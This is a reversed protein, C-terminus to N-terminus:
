KEFNLFVSDAFIDPTFFSPVMDQSLSPPDSYYNTGSSSLELESNPIMSANEQGKGAEEETEGSRIGQMSTRQDTTSHFNFYGQKVTYLHVLQSLERMDDMKPKPPPKSFDGPNGTTKRAAASSSLGKNSGSPLGVGYRAIFTASRTLTSLHSITNRYRYRDKSLYVLIMDCFLTATGFFAMSSGVKMSFKLLNFKGAKGTVSIFFQIGNVKMLMRRHKVSGYHTAFETYFKDELPIFTRNSIQHSTQSNSVSGLYRFSYTPYCRDEHLDLDCDWHISIDIIGGVKLIERVVAGSQHIINHLRFNPCYKNFPHGKEYFCKKLYSANMWPLINRKKFKYIPFEISNKISVTFNLVDYLPEVEGRKYSPFDQARVRQEIFKLNSFLHFQPRLLPNSKSTIEIIKSWSSRRVESNELIPCWAFVECTSTEPVCRGTFPGHGDLDFDFFPPFSMNKLTSTLKTAAIEGAPCDADSSCIADFLEPSEPCFTQEQEIASYIRTVLFFGANQIPPVALDAETYIIPGGAHYVGDHDLNSFVTGCVRTTVGSIPREFAQYGKEHLMVWVVFYVIIALQMLRYLVGVSSAKIIVVKPM